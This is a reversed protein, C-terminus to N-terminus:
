ATLSSTGVAFSGSPARHTYSNNRSIKPIKAYTKSAVASRYPANDSKAYADFDISPTLMMEDKRETTIPYAPPISVCPKCRCRADSHKQSPVREPRAARHLIGRCLILTVPTPVSTSATRPGPEAHFPSTVNWQLSTNRGKPAPIKLAYPDVSGIHKSSSRSLRVEASSM